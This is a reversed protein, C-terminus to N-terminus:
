FFFLFIFFLVVRTASNDNHFNDNISMVFDKFRFIVNKM